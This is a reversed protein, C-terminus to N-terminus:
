STAPPETRNAQVRAELLIAEDDRGLKRLLTALTKQCALAEPHDPATQEWIAQARELLPLAEAPHGQHELLRGLHALSEAVKPHTFGLAQERITLAQEFLLRAEEDQEQDRALEELTTLSEAMNRHTPPLGQERIALARQALPLADAYRGQRRALDALGNLDSAM